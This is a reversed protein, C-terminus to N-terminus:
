RTPTAHIGDRGVRGDADGSGRHEPENTSWACMVPVRDKRRNKPRLSLANAKECYSLSREVFRAVTSSINLAASTAFSGSDKTSCSGHLQVARCAAAEMQEEVNERRWETSDDLLRVTREQSVDSLEAWAPQRAAHARAELRPSTAITRPARTCDQELLNRRVLTKTVRPFFRKSRPTR